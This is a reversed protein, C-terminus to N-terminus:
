LGAVVAGVKDRNDWLLKAPPIVYGLGQKVGGWFDKLWSLHTANPMFHPQSALARNVSDMVNTSGVVATGKMFSVTCQIEYVTCVEIRIVKPSTVPANPSFTGSVVLSPAYDTPKSWYDPRRFMNESIDEPSWWGYNGLLLEGNMGNGCKAVAETNQLQGVSANPSNTFYSTQLTDGFVYSGAILGGNTLTPGVYTALVSCGVTRYEQAMGYDGSPFSNNSIDSGADTGFDSARNYFTPTISLITNAYRFAYSTLPARLIIELHTKCTIQATYYCTTGSQGFQSTINDVEFDSASGKKLVLSPLASFTTGFTETQAMFKVSYQGPGIRFWNEGNPSGYMMKTGPCGYTSYVENAQEFPSNAAVELPTGSSTVAQLEYCGIPPQTIQTYYQDIRPDVGDINHIYSDAASWDVDAWMTGVPPPKAIAIKYSGPGALSGMHPQVAVSFRGIDPDAPNNNNVPIMFVQRSTIVSTPRPYADPIRFENMAPYILTALYQRALESDGSAVTRALQIQSKDEIKSEILGAAFQASPM